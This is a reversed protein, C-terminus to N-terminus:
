VEELDEWYLRKYFLFDEPTYVDIRNRPLYSHFMYKTQKYAPDWHILYKTGQYQCLIGWVYILSPHSIKKIYIKVM